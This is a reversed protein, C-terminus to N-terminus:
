KIRKMPRQIRLKKLLPLCDGRDFRCRSSPQEGGVRDGHNETGRSSGHRSTPPALYISLSPRWHLGGERTTHIERVMTLRLRDRSREGPKLALLSPWGARPRRGPIRMTVDALSVGLRHGLTQEDPDRLDLKSLEPLPEFMQPHATVCRRHAGKDEPSARGSDETTYWVAFALRRSPTCSSARM